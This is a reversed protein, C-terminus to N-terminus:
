EENDCIRNINDLKEQLAKKDAQLKLIVAELDLICLRRNELEEELERMREGQNNAEDLVLLFQAKIGEIDEMLEDVPRKEVPEVVEEEKFFNFLGM